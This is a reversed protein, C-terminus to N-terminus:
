QLCRWLRGGLPFLTLWAFVTLSSVPAVQLQSGLFAAGPSILTAFALTAAISGCFGLVIAVAFGEDAAVSPGIAAGIRRGAVVALVPAVVIFAGILVILLPNASLVPRARRWACRVLANALASSM